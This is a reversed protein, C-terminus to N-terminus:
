FQLTWTKSHCRLVSWGPTKVRRKSVGQIDYEGWALSYPLFQWDEAMPTRPADPDLPSNCRACTDNTNTDAFVPNSLDTACDTCHFECAEMDAYGIVEFSRM